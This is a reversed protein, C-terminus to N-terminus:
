RSFNEMFQYAFDHAEEQTLEQSKGEGVKKGYLGQSEAILVRCVLEGGNYIFLVLVNEKPVYKIGKTGNSNVIAYANGDPVGETLAKNRAREFALDGAISQIAFSFAVMVLLIILTKKM